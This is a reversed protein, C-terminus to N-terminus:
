RPIVSVVVPILHNATYNGQLLPMNFQLIIIFSSSCTHFLSFHVLSQLTHKFHRHIKLRPTFSQMFRHVASQFLVVCNLRHTLLHQKLTFDATISYDYKM